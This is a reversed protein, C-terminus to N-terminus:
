PRRDEGAQDICEDTAAVRGSVDEEGYKKIDKYLRRYGVRWLGQPTPYEGSQANGQLQRALRRLRKAKKANM